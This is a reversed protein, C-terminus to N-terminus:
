KFYKLISPSISFCFRMEAEKDNLYHVRAKTRKPDSCGEGKGLNYWPYKCASLPLFGGDKKGLGEDEPQQLACHM